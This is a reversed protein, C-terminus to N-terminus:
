DAVRSSRGPNRRGTRPGADTPQDAAPAASSAAAPTARRGTASTIPNPNAPRRARRRLTGAARVLGGRGLLLLAALLLVAAVVPEFRVEEVGFVSGLASSLRPLAALVAAGAVPGLTTGAGGLLVAVFLEVSRLPGFSAPDAVGAVQAALAGAAGAVGAAAVVAGWELRAAPVGLAAAADPGQRVAALELGPRNRAVTRFALLSVVVLM